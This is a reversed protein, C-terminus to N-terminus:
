SNVARTIDRHVIQMVIRTTSSGGDLGYYTNQAQGLSWLRQVRGPGSGRAAETGAPRRRVVFRRLAGRRRV